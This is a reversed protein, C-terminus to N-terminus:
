RTLPNGSLTDFTGQGSSFTEPTPLARVGLAEGLNPGRPATPGEGLGASCIKTKTDLTRVHNAKMQAVAPPPIGCWAQNKEVYAVAKGEAEAFSQFLKCVEPRPAHTDAAKKIAAARTEAAQRLPLFDAMCPPEGGAGPAQAGAQITLGLGQIIVLLAGHALRM